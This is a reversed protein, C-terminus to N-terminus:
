GVLGDKTMALLDNLTSQSALSETDSLTTAARNCAVVIPTIYVEVIMSVFM